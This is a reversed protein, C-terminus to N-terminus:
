GGSGSRIQQNLQDFLGKGNALVIVVIILALFARSPAEFEKVYGLSGIVGLAVIWILFNNPGTLDQKLQAFLEKHTGQYATVILLIGAILFAFPM